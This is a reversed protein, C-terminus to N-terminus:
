RIIKMIDDNGVAKVIQGNYHVWGKLVFHTDLIENKAKVSEAVAERRFHVNLQQDQEGEAHDYPAGELTFNIIQSADYMNSDLITISGNESVNIVIESVVKSNNIETEQINELNQQQSDSYSLQNAFSIPMFLLLIGVLLVFFKQLQHCCIM